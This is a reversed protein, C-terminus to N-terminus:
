AAARLPPALLDALAAVGERATSHDVSNLIRIARGVAETFRADVAYDESALARSYISRVVEAEQYGLTGLEHLAQLLRGRPSGAFAAANDRRARADAVVREPERGPYADAEMGGFHVGRTRAAEREAATRRAREASIELAIFRDLSPDTPLGLGAILAEVAEMPTTPSSPRLLAALDLGTRPTRTSGDAM